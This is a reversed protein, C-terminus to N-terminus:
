CHMCTVYVKKYHTSNYKRCISQLERAVNTLYRELIGGATLKQFDTLYFGQARLSIGFALGSCGGDPASFRMVM